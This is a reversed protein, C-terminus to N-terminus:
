PICVVLSQPPYWISVENEQTAGPLIRFDEPESAHLLTGHYLLGAHGPM